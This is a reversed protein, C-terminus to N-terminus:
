SKSFFLSKKMKCYTVNISCANLSVLLGGTSLAVGNGGLRRRNWVVGDASSRELLVIVVPEVHGVGDKSHGTNESGDSELRDGLCEGLLGLGTASYSVWYREYCRCALSLLIKEVDWGVGVVDEDLKVEGIREGYVVVFDILGVLVEILAHTVQHLLVNVLTQKRIHVSWKEHIIEVEALVVPTANIRRRLLRRELRSQAIIRIAEELLPGATAPSQVLQRINGQYSNYMNYM